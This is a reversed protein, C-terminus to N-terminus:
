PMDLRMPFGNSDFALNYITINMASYIVLPCVDLPLRGFLM